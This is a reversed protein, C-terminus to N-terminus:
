SVAGKATNYVSMLMNSHMCSFYTMHAHTRVTNPTHHCSRSDWPELLCGAAVVLWLCTFLICGQIEFLMEPVGLQGKGQHGCGSPSPRLDGMSLEFLVLYQARTVCELDNAGEVVVVLLSVLRGSLEECLHQVVPLFAWLTLSTPPAFSGTAKSCLWGISHCCRVKMVTRCATSHSFHVSARPRGSSCIVSSKLSCFVPSAAIHATMGKM